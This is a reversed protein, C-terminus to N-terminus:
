ISKNKKVLNLFTNTIIPFTNLCIKVFEMKGTLDTKIPFFKAEKLLNINNLFDKNKYRFFVLHSFVVQNLSNLKMQIGCYLEPNVNKINEGFELLSSRVEIISQFYKYRKTADQSNTFSNIYQVYNYGIFNLYKVSKTHHLIKPLIESDQMNIREKFFIQNELFLEKKFIYQWTYNKENNLKYYESGSVIESIYNDPYAKYLVRENEDKVNYNICYVDLDTQINRFVLKLNDTEIYDDGDIMWIYKGNANQIGNNRSAGLGQNKQQIVKLNRVLDYLNYIVKLTKDTSGDDVVLIEIDECLHKDYCSQICKEIFAEVNYAAIIISLLM